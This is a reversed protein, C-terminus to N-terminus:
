QQMDMLEPYAELEDALTRAKPSRAGDCSINNDKLFQRAANLDTATATKDKIRRTFEDALAGHLDALADESARGQAPTQIGDDNNDNDM